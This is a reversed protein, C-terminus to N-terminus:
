PGVLHKEEELGMGAAMERALGRVMQLPDDLAGSFPLLIKPCDTAQELRALHAEDMKRTREWAEASALLAWEEERMGEGAGRRSGNPPKTNRLEARWRDFREYETGQFFPPSVRNVFLCGIPLGLEGTAKRHLEVAETVPTEALLTVINFATREPDQLLEAVKRAERRVFGKATEASTMPMQFYSLVHGTAPTDVVILDYAPRESGPMRKQELDWLKGVAMLEKLGPAVNVFYQYIPSRTIKDVLKRSKLVLHLYEDLGSRGDVHLTALGEALPYEEYPRGPPKEFLNPVTSVTDLEVLLVRRGTRSALWAFAAAVTSKGVGGKGSFAVIRKDLLEACPM